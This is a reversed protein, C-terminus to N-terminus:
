ESRVAFWLDRLAPLFLGSTRGSVVRPAARYGRPRNDQPRLTGPTGLQEATM